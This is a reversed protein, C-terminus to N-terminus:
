ASPSSMEIGKVVGDFLRNGGRPFHVQVDM